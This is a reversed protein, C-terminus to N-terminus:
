KIKEKKIQLSLLVFFNEEKKLRRTCADREAAKKVGVTMQTVLREQSSPELKQCAVM